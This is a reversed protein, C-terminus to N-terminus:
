YLKFNAGIRAIHGAYDASATFSFLNFIPSHPDVFTVSMHGLDYYLYEAKISWRDDLAYEFGGGITWGILWQTNTGSACIKICGPLPATTTTVPDVFTTAVGSTNTVAATLEAEGFALGGTAFAM